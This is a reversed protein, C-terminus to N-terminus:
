RRHRVVDQLFEETELFALAEQVTGKDISIMGRMGPEQLHSADFNHRRAGSTLVFLERPEAASREPHRYSPSNVAM